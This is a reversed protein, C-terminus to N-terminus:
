FNLAGTGLPDFWATWDKQLVNPPLIRIRGCEIHVVQHLPIEERVRDDQLTLLLIGKPRFWRVINKVIRCTTESPLGRDPEDLILLRSQRQEARNLARALLLRTKQGGSLRNEVPLHLQGGLSERVFTDIELLRLFRWVREEEEQSVLAQDDDELDTIMTYVSSRYDMQADQLVFTRLLELNHFADPLETSEDITM